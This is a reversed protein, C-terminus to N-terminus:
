YTHTRYTPPPPCLGPLEFRAVQRVVMSAVQSNKDVHKDFDHLMKIGSNLSHAGINAQCHKPISNLGM